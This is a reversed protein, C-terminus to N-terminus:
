REEPVGWLMITGDDSATALLTGDRNFEIDKVPATHVTPLNLQADEYSVNALFNWLRIEGGGCYFYGGDWPSFLKEACGASALLNGDPNFAVDYIWSNHISAVGAFRNTQLDFLQVVKSEGGVALLDSSDDFALGQPRDFPYDAMLAEFTETDSWRWIFVGNSTLAIRGSSYFLNKLYGQFHLQDFPQGNLFLDSFVWKENTAVDYQEILGNESAVLLGESGIFITSVIPSKRNVVVRHL